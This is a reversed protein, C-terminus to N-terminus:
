PCSDGVARRVAQCVAIDAQAGGPPHIKYGKWGLSQYHLAQEVYAEPSSLKQSSAYAPISTRYAGLLAHIPLGAAKGAIDWLAVDVAGVPRQTFTRAWQSAQRHLRERRLPDQNVLMPKLWDILPKADLSAPRMTSGLFSHGEIGEDTSIRLLGLESKGSLNSLGSAYQTPPLGEWSFLTLTVDTIKM